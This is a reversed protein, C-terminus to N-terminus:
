GLINKLDEPTLGLKALKDLSAQKIAKEAKEIEAAKAEVAKADYEVIKENADYAVDGRITVVNKYLARIADDIYYNM